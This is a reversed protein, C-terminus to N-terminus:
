LKGASQVIDTDAECRPPPDWVKRMQNKSKREIEQGLANVANIIIKPGANRVFEPKVPAEGRAVLEHPSAHSRTDVTQENM